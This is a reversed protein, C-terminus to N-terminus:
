QPIRVVARGGIQGKALKHVVEDMQEFEFVEIAAVVKGAVALLLLEDMEEQTGVASGIIRLSRLVMELPSVTLSSRSLGICVLTGLNRTLRVAQDYAVSSEATCVVAHAGYGSTIEKVSKEVDDHKFDLFITAGLELCLKRKDEGTDIAIIKYGAQQAIQVGIHGLGGGAGPLVLWEGEQLNCKKIASYISIGACLLPAAAESRLQEPIRTVFKYPSVMYQQFTGDVDRGANHQKPCATINVSCIECELCTSYLWKVGVRSNQFSEPVESGCKVVKGIGEHGSINTTMVRDGLIKGVDSRCVGTCEMKVLVEDAAPEPVAVNDKIYIHADSGPKDVWAALQTNPIAVLETKRIAMM